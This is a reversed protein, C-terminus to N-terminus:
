RRGDIFDTVIRTMAANGGVFPKPTFEAAKAIAAKLSAKDTAYLLYGRDAFVSTIECQHDDLHEGYRALRPFAIVKKGHRLASILSSVGGHSIILDAYAIAQEFTGGDVFDFSRYRKPVYAAHGRQAVIRDGDLASEAVLEDLIRLPRSFDFEVVGGVIMFIDM